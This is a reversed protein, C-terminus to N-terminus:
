IKFKSSYLRPLTGILNNKETSVGHDITYDINGNSDYKQAAWYSTQENWGEAFM